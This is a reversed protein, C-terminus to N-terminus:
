WRSTSTASSGCTSSRSRQAANRRSSGSSRLCIALASLRSGCRRRARHAAVSQTGAADRQDGAGAARRGAADFRERCAPRADAPLLWGLLSRPVSRAARPVLVGRALRVAAGAPRRARVWHAASASSWRTSASFAAHARDRSVPQHGAGARLEAGAGRRSRAARTRGAALRLDAGGRVACVRGREVRQRGPLHASLGAHRRRPRVGADARRLDAYLRHGGM